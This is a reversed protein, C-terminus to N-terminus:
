KIRIEIWIEECLIEKVIEDIIESRREEPYILAKILPKNFTKLIERGTNTIRNKNQDLRELEGRTTMPLLYNRIFIEKTLDKEQFVGFINKTYFGQNKPDDKYLGLLDYYRRDFNIKFFPIFRFQFKQPDESPPSLYKIYESTGLFTYYIRGVRGSLLAVQLLAANMINTGGTINCWIQKGQKEGESFKLFAAAMREFCIEYDNENVICIFLTSKEPLIDKLRNKIFKEIIEILTRNRLTTGQISGYKNDVCEKVLEEGESVAQSVFIVVSEIREDFDKGVLDPFREPHAKIYALASTVAGPAKGVTAFHVVGMIM